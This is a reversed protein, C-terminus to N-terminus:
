QLNMICKGLDNITKFQNCGYYYIGAGNFLEITDTIFQAFEASGNMAAERWKKESAVKAAYAEDLEQRTMYAM